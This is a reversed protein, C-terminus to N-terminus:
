ASVTGFFAHPRGLTSAEILEDFEGKHYDALSRLEKIRSDSWSVSHAGQSTSQASPTAAIRNAAASYGRYYVYHAAADNSTTLDSAVSLWSVLVTDIDGDPFMVPQMEGDPYKLDDITLTVTM